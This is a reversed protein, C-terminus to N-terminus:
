FRYNMTHCVDDNFCCINCINVLLEIPLIVIEILSCYLRNHRTDFQLSDISRYIARIHDVVHTSETFMDIYLNNNILMQRQCQISDYLVFPMNSTSMNSIYVHIYMNKRLLQVTDIFKRHNDINNEDLDRASRTINKKFVIIVRITSIQKM